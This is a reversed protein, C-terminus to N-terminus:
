AGARTEDSNKAASELATWDSDGGFGTHEKAAGFLCAVVAGDLDDMAAGMADEDTLVRNGDADVLSQAVLLQQLRDLRSQIPKAGAGIFSGRFARMESNTLSRLRAEHGGPLTVTRFRRKTMGLLSARDITM